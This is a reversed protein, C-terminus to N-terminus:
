CDQIVTKILAVDIKRTSDNLIIWNEGSDIIKIIGITKAIIVSIYGPSDAVLHNTYEIVDFYEKGNIEYSDLYQDFNFYSDNLMVHSNRINRSDMCSFGLELSDSSLGVSFDDACMCKSLRAIKDTHTIHRSKVTLTLTDTCDANVLQIKDTGEYPFWKFIDDNFEECRKNCGASIIILACIIITFRTHEM